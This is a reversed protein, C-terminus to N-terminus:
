LLLEGGADLMRRVHPVLHVGSAHPNVGWLVALRADAVDAPDNGPLDGYVSNVAAGANTACLTRDARATGLAAWLRADLGGGTLYGNSGGYWFPLLAEGGSEALVRLWRAAILDLAEDWPVREFRAGPGKPGVRVAPWLVREPGHVRRGFKAVKACIYGDTAPNRRSGSVRVVRGDRVTVDLSCRDPCDLPCVSPTVDDM